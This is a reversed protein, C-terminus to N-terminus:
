KIKTIIISGAVMTIKIESQIPGGTISNIDPMIMSNSHDYRVMIGDIDVDYAADSAGSIHIGYITGSPNNDFDTGTLEVQEVSNGTASKVDSSTSWRRLYSEISDSLAIASAPTYTVGEFKVSNIQNYMLVRNTNGSSFSFTPPNANKDCYFGNVPQIVHTEKNNTQTIYASGHEFELSFLKTQANTIQTLLLSIVLITLKKM